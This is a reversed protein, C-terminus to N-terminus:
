VVRHILLGGGGVVVFSSTPPHSDVVEGAQLLQHGEEPCFLHVEGGTVLITRRRPLPKASLVAGAARFGHRTVAGPACTYLSLNDHLYRKQLRVSYLGGDNTGVTVELAGGPAFAVSVSRPCEAGSRLGTKRLAQVRPTWREPPLAAEEPNLEVVFLAGGVDTAVLVRGEGALCAATLGSRTPVEARNVVAGGGKLSLFDLRGTHSLCVLVGPAVVEFLVSNFPAAARRLTQQAQDGQGAVCCFALGAAGDSVAVWAGDFSLRAVPGPLCGPVLLGRRDRMRLVVVGGKRTGCALDGGPSFCAATTEGVGGPLRLRGAHVRYARAGQVLLLLLLVEDGKM